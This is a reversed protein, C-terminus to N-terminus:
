KLGAKPGRKSWKAVLGEVHARAADMERGDRASVDLDAGVAFRRATGGHIEVLAAVQRGEDPDCVYVNELVKEMNGNLHTLHRYFASPARGPFDWTILVRDM